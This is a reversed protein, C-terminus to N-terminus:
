VLHEVPKAQHISQPERVSRWYNLFMEAAKEIQLRDWRDDITRVLEKIRREWNWVDKDILGFKIRTVLPVKYVSSLSNVLENTHFVIHQGASSLPKEDQDLIVERQVLTLASVLNRFIEEERSVSKQPRLVSKWYDTAVLKQFAAAVKEEEIDWVEEPEYFNYLDLCLDQPLKVAIKAEQYSIPLLDFYSELLFGIEETSADETKSAYKVKEFIDDWKFRSAVCRVHDFSLDSPISIFYCFEESRLYRHTIRVIRNRQFMSRLKM